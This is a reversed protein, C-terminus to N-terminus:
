RKVLGDKLKQIVGRTERSNSKFDVTVDNTLDYAMQELHNGINDFNRSLAGIIEKAQEDKSRM